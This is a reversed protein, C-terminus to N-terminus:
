QHTLELGPKILHVVWSESLIVGGIARNISDPPYPPLLTGLDETSIIGQKFLEIVHSCLDITDLILFGDHDIINYNSMNYRIIGMHYVTFGGVLNIYIVIDRCDISLCMSLLPVRIFVGDM